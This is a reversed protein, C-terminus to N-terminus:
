PSYTVRVAQTTGFEAGCLVGPLDRFFLQFVRTEGAAVGIQAALGGAPNGPPGFGGALNGNGDIARTGHRRQVGGMCRLGNGANPLGSDLEFCPHGSGAPLATSGSFLVGISFAPMGGAEFRLSDASVRACGSAELFPSENSSALCGGVTGPPAENMCPCPSCGPAVGGDGHCFGEPGGVRVLQMGNFAAICEDAPDTSEMLVRLMGDTVDIEAVAHTIGEEFSGSFFGGTSGGFVQDGGSTVSWVSTPWEFFPDWGYGVARYRGVELGEFTWDGDNGFSTDQCDDMLAALDGSTLPHDSYYSPGFSFATSLLVNTPDGALDDLFVSIVAFAGGVGNWRGPSQAAGGFTDSPVAVPAPLTGQFDVNFSQATAVGSLVLTTALHPIM